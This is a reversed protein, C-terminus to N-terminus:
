GGIVCVLLLFSLAEFKCVALMLSLLPRPILRKPGLDKLLNQILFRRGDTFVNCKQDILFFSLQMFTSLYMFKPVLIGGSYCSFLYFNLM